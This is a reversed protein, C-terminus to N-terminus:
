EYDKSKPQESNHSHKKKSEFRKVREHKQKIFGNHASYHRKKWLEERTLPAQILQKNTKGIINMGVKDVREIIFDIPKCISLVVSGKSDYIACGQKSINCDLAKNGTIQSLPIEVSFGKEANKVIVLIEDDFGEEPGSIRFKSIRGTFTEGIHKECWNVSLVDALDKEAQDIDLQRQNATEIIQAIRDKHIPKTHHIHALINYHSVYDPSRRIGATFHSYHPSQLAYHSIPTSGFQADKLQKSNYPTNSYVARSQMKILFDNVLEESASGRVLDLIINTNQSSLEDVMEIGILNFFEEAKNNKKTNPEDHVRYITDIENELAFKATAENATIMFGEIVKQYPLDTLSEIDMVMSLDSDFTIKREHNATFRIMKRADFGRQITESAYYNMLIQEEPSIEENTSLKLQLYKKSILDKLTDTIEQAEEYSYKKRSRVIADYIQSEKAAGTKGDIITKVVIALRDEGENLSCINTSLQKPTIGYAHNPTYFTFSHAFYEQAIASGFPIYKTINSIASYCVFDGNENITSYIADDMDQCDQPDVTVFPIHRMDVTKGIQSLQADAESIISLSSTNVKTPIHSIEEKLAPSDWNIVADYYRAIAEIEQMPNGALGYTEIVHGGLLPADADKLNLVCLRDEFSALEEKNNLIPIHRAPISKNNPIFVLNDHSLKVVRGLLTANQTNQTQTIFTSTSHKPKNTVTQKTFEKKSKGLIIVEQKQNYFEIVVDLIDGPNYGAAVSNSIPYHTKSTPLLIHYKGNEKQLLGVQQIDPNLSVFDKDLKLKNLAILGELLPTLKTKSSLKGSALLQKRLINRHIGNGNNQNKYVTKLIASITQFKEQDIAM